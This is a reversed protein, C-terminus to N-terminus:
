FHICFGGDRLEKVCILYQGVQAPMATRESIAQSGKM